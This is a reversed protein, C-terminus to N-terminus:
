SLYWPTILVQVKLLKPPSKSLSKANLLALWAPARALEANKNLEDLAQQTAEFEFESATLGAEAQALGDSSILAKSEVVHEGAQVFVEDVRGAGSVSLYAFKEPLLIGTASVIPNDLGV